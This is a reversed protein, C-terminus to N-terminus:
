KKPIKVYPKEKVKEDDKYAVYPLNRYDQNYDLGYGLVFADGIDFGVYDAKFPIIRKEPKDLLTCVKISNPKQKKLEPILFKMTYGSDIIDEVLLVDKGTIKPIITKMVDIDKRTEGDYSVVRVFDLKVNKNIARMLDATFIMSGKLICILDLEKDKYDKEIDKGLEIIRHKLEEESILTKLEM